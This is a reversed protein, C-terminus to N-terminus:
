GIGKLRMRLEDPKPTAELAVQMDVIESEVLKALSTNYDVMGEKESKRMIELLEGERGQLIFKEVIPTGLLIEHVPVRAIDKHLTPLLRQYIIARMNYALLKSIQEREHEEFLDYIRGFTQWASSAHITGFVLHGTEAARIAAEFTDKDRMEGIFAIDPDERVLSKLAENFTLCDIGVERQNVTAINDKFMYEIPDEITVIHVPKRDIVYQIMAAISTSKGSGTVGAFLILGNASLSIDGLIEPLNLQEFTMINSTILRCVLAPKGCAMFMNVRFRRDEDYQYAFDIQGHHRFEEYREKDLLDQAIQFLIGSTVIPLKTAKLSGKVRIKPPSGTKVHLDSAENVITAKLMRMFSKKGDGSTIIEKAIKASQKVESTSQKGTQTM